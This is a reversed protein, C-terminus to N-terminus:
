GPSKGGGHCITFVIWIFLLEYESSWSMFGRLLSFMYVGDWLEAILASTVMMFSRAEKDSGGIEKLRM